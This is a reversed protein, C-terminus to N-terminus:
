DQYEGLAELCLQLGTLDRLPDDTLVVFLRRSEAWLMLSEPLGFDEILCGDPDRWAGNSELRAGVHAAIRDRLEGDDEETVNLWAFVPKGQGALFGAEFAAAPDATPGRFPTLNVLGADARRMRSMREAYIERAQVETLDAGAVPDAKLLDFGMAQCLAVQLLGHEGADPLTSEPGALYLTQIRKAM